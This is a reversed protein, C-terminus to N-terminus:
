FMVINSVFRLGYALSMLFAVVFVLLADRMSCGRVSDFRCAVSRVLCSLGLGCFVVLPMSFLFKHYAFESGTLLISLSAVFVWSVLLDSIDCSRVLIFLFGVVSLVVFFLNGFVGGLYFNATVRLGEWLFGFDPFVLSGSVTEYVIAVSSTECLIQRVLDFFLTALLSGVILTAKVKFNGLSSGCKFASCFQIFLFVVLSLYFIFWTWPHCFLVLMSLGTLLFLGLWLGKDLVMFFGVYFLYVFILALMNAFYGSHILGLAQVSFPALFVTYVLSERPGGVLKVLWVSFVSLLAILLFPLFQVLHLPSIFDSLFYLFMMFVARDGGFALGVACVFDGARMDQVWRYYLPADVSVLRYTPNVWPSVTFAVLVGCIAVSFLVSVFLFRRGGLFGFDVKQGMVSVDFVRRVFGLFRNASLVRFVRRLFGTKVFLGGVGLFVLVLYALPLLPYAVNWLSVDLLLWHRAWGLVSSGFVLGVPTSLLFFSVLSLLEVFLLFVCVYLFLNKVLSIRPLSFCVESFWVAFLFVAASALVLWVFGFSFFVFIFPSLLLLLGRTVGGKKRILSLVLWGVSFFVVGTWILGDLDSSLFVAAVATKVMGGNVLRYFTVGFGAAVFLVSYLLAIALCVKVTWDPLLNLRV